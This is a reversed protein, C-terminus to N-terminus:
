GRMEDIQEVTERVAHNEGDIRVVSKSTPAWQGADAPEVLSIKDPDIEFRSGDPRTLWISKM